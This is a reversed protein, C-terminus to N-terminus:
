KKAADAAKAEEEADITSMHDLMRVVQCSYGWENDYWAILKVFDHDLMLGATEDFISPCPNGILDTSVLQDKTYGIIGKMNTESAHRIEYCIEAYTTPRSLKATLDVVSVDATPVRFSMGTMKGKLSPIVRGVAKAAGTTSPIINNLISRGTRWDSGGRSDVAKQKATSAHITSMLSREIGFVEHIVYALPALCNTTCSAASVVKMDPRYLKSNIGYVFTPTAEDKAPATLLVRKAGGKFHRSAKETTNNAGTCELIYEAGCQSWPIMAADNESFVRIKHGNVVLNGDLNEVTGEFNRFVSDYKLLYVMYDIDAKRLNIGCVDFKEPSKMLIRLLVRGIRGFGNIGIKIAMCRFREKDEIKQGM